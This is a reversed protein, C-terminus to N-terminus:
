CGEPLLPPERVWDFVADQHSLICGRRFQRIWLVSNPLPDGRLDKVRLRRQWGKWCKGLREKMIMQVFLSFFFYLSLLYACHIMLSCILPYNCLLFIVQRFSASKVWSECRFIGVPLKQLGRSQGFARDHNMWRPVNSLWNISMKLNGSANWTDMV